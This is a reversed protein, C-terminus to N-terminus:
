LVTLEKEAYYKKGNGTWGIRVTYKGSALTHLQFTQTGNADPQLVFKRDKAADYACYFWIDGSVSQEKMEEPLQLVINGDDAQEMKVPSVLANASQTADIVEQYRLENKYYDKEVLEYNTNVSRYILYAM